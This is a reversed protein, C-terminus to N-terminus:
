KTLCAKVKGVYMRHYDTKKYLSEIKPDLFQSPILDQYYIKECFFIMRAEKFGITDEEFFPNLGSEKMKNIDRGSKSGCLNLCDRYQEGFFNLSFHTNAELFEYTYRSPRVVIYVVPDGWLIGMGGWSATMMNYKESDGACIVTWDQDFLKFVNENLAKVSQQKFEM